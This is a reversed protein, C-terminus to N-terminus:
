KGYPFIQTCGKDKVGLFLYGLNIKLAELLPGTPHPYLSRVTHNSQYMYQTCVDDVVQPTSLDPTYTNVGNVNSGVQIPYDAILAVKNATGIPRAARHFGKPFRGAQFFTRATEMDLQGDDQRGDVFLNNPLVADNYATFFRPAVLSFEPNQAISDQFLRNRLESAVTLNYKGAGFKNSYEIFQLRM